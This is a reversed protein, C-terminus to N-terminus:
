ESVNNQNRTSSAMVLLKISNSLSIRFSHLEVTASSKSVPCPM